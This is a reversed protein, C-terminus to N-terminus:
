KSSFLPSFREEAFWTIADVNPRYDMKGTFVLANDNLTLTQKHNAYDQSFVGNPVVYTRDDQRFRRLIAADEPSVAVVADAMKCLTGEFGEIRKAQINSYIAAPIRALDRRDVQAIVRQLAAEANFTDFILPTTPRLSRVFPLYVGVEIGEFQVVDFSNDSSLLHRLTQQMQDSWLRREIDAHRTTLLDRLRQTRTRSPMPVTVITECLTALPSQEIDIQQTEDFFSALTVRHGAKVLGDLLGYTRIAGGQHPPYPLAATVMLIRM